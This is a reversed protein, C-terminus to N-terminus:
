AHSNVYELAVSNEPELELVISFISKAADTAGMKHYNNGLKLLVTTDGPISELYDTYIDAAEQRRGLSCLLDAYQPQYGPAIRSLCEMALAAMELNKQGLCLVAIRRLAEEVLPTVEESILLQYTELALDWNQETEHLYGQVLNQLQGAEGTNPHRKLGDLLRVLGQQDKQSFLNAAKNQVTELSNLHAVADKALTRSRLWENAQRDWTTWNDMKFLQQLDPRRKKGSM